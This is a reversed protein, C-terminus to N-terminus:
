NPQVSAMKSVRVMLSPSRDGFKTLNLGFKTEFTMGLSSCEVTSARVEDLQLGVQARVRTDTYHRISSCSYRTSSSTRTTASVLELM